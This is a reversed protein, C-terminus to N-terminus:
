HKYLKDAVAFSRTETKDKNTRILRIDFTLKGKTFVSKQICDNYSQCAPTDTFSYETKELTLINEITLCYNDTFYAILNNARDHIFVNERRYFKNTGTVFYVHKSCYNGGCGNHLAIIKDSSWEYVPVISAPFSCDIDDRWKTQWMGNGAVLGYTTDYKVYKVFAGTTADITDHPMCKSLDKEIPAVSKGSDTNHVDGKPIQDCSSFLFLILFLNFCSRMSHQLYQRIM